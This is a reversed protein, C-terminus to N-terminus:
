ELYVRLDGYRELQTLVRTEIQRVAEHSLGLKRGVEHLTHERDGDLGYRYRIV